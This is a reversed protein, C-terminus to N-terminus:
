FTIVQPPIDGDATSLDLCLYDGGGNSLFPVWEKRWWNPREFDKGIMGDLLRKTSAADELPMFMRNYELSAFCDLRQGNRWQYLM